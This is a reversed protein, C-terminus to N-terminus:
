GTIHSARTVTTVIEGPVTVTGDGTTVIGETTRLDRTTVRTEERTTTTVPILTTVTDTGRQKRLTNQLTAISATLVDLLTTPVACGVYGTTVMQDSNEASSAPLVVPSTTHEVLAVAGTEM